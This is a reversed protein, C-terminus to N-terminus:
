RIMTRCMIHAVSLTTLHALFIYIYKYPVIASTEEEVFSLMYGRQWDIRIIGSIHAYLTGGVM